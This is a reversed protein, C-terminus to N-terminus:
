EPRAVFNFTLTVDDETNLMGLLSIPGVGFQSMKVTSTATGTLTNDKLTATVDFTVLQTTDHVTLDGSVTFSYAQGEVYSEPLGDISSPKFTAIPYKSSQLFQNRITQDRRSSDSKFQSIDIQIEGITSAPPNSMDANIDGSVQGTTGVAVNLRNNDNIFTEAVQYSVSLEDPVIKFVVVGGQSTSGTGTVAQTPITETSATTKGSSAAGGATATAMSVDSPIASPAPSSPAASCAALVITALLTIWVNKM